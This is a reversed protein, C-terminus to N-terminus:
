YIDPLNKFSGSARAGWYDGSYVFIKEGTFEDITEKFWYPKVIAGKKENERRKARQKEELRHKEDSALEANGYEWARQDPRLRSDTQAMRALQEGQIHNLLLTFKTFSYQEEGLAPIREWLVHEVGTKLDTAKMYQDWRGTLKVLPTGDKSKVVGTAEFGGEDYSEREPIVLTGVDGTQFNTFTLEGHNDLYMTGWILNRVSTIPRNYVYHEKTAKLLVHSSGLPFVSFAKMSFQSKLQTDGWFQFHPCDAHGATIPPHHSVQEAIYKIEREDDIYEFTEHLLPNFPKKIRKITQGLPSFAFAMVYAMRMHSEKQQNAKILLDPYELSECFRQLASIPENLYVPVAFKSLDKGICDKL